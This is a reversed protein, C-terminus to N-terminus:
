FLSYTLYLQHYFLYLLPFVPLVFFCSFHAFFLLFLSISIHFNPFLPFFCQIINTYMGLCAMYFSYHISRSSLHPSLSLHHPPPTSPSSCRNPIAHFPKCRQFSPLFYDRFSGLIFSFSECKASIHHFKSKEGEVKSVAYRDMWAVM